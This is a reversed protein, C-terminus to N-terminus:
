DNFYKLNELLRTKSRTSFIVKGNPNLEVAKFLLNSYNDDEGLVTNKFVSHHFHTSNPFLSMVHKIKELNYGEYQLIDWIPEITKSDQIIRDVNTAIGIKLVKGAEKLKLLEYISDDSLNAPLAEHLMIANLHDTKLRSLSSEISHSIQKADIKSSYNNSVSSNIINELNSPSSLQRRLYNLRLLLSTMLPVVKSSNGLGFKSVLFVENRKGKLFKGYIVESYGNGYVPATDFHRIGLDYSLELLKIAQKLSPMSTLSAGGFGINKKISNMGLCYFFM